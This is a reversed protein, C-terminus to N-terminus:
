FAIFALIRWIQDIFYKIVKLEIVDGMGDSKYNGIIIEDHILKLILLHPESWSLILERNWETYHVLNFWENTKRRRLQIHVIYMIYDRNVYPPIM